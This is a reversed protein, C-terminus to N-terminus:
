YVINIKRKRVESQIVSGLDMWRLEASALLKAWLPSMPDPSPPDPPLPHMYIYPLFRVVSYPM